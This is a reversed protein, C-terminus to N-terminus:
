LNPFFCRVFGGFYLYITTSVPTQRQEKKLANSREMGLKSQLTRNFQVEPSVGLGTLDSRRGFPTLSGITALLLYSAWTEEEDSAIPLLLFGTEWCALFKGGLFYNSSVGM